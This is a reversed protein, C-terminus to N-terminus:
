HMSKYKSDADIIFGFTNEYSKQKAFNPHSVLNELNQIAIIRGITSNLNLLAEFTYEEVKTHDFWM